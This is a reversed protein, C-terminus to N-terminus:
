AKGDGEVVARAEMTVLSCATELLPCRVAGDQVIDFAVLKGTHGGAAVVGNVINRM